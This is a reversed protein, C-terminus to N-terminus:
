RWGPSARRTRPAPRGRRAVDAPGRGVPLPLGPAGDAAGPEDHPRGGSRPGPRACTRPRSRGRGRRRGGPGLGGGRAGATRRAGQPAARGARAGARPPGPRRQAAPVGRRPHRAPRGGRAPRARSAAERWGRRREPDLGLTDVVTTLGRGLRAAVVTELLAFADDSADLDHPGSGVVGRLADSSVIEQARYRAEAWTSKGSGSAGVLVVLAPDPLRMDRLRACRPVPVHRLPRHDAASCRGASWRTGRGTPCCGDSGRRPSPTGASSTAPAPAGSRCRGRSWRRSRRPRCGTARAGIPSSASPRSSGPTATGSRPSSPPGAATAPLGAASGSPPPSRAPSSRGGGARRATGGGAAARGHAGRHRVEVRLLSRVAAGGGPGRHLQDDRGPRPGRDPSPLLARTVAVQGLVNVELQQRWDDVTLAEVPGVVAVGANNVLARLRSPAAAVETVLAAVDGPDTVDLRVARIRPSWSEARQADEDRRVGALVDLGLGALHRCTAAGIGTSAGTM